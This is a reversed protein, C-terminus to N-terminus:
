GRPARAMEVFYQSDIDTTQRRAHRVDQRGPDPERGLVGSGTIKQEVLFLRSRRITTPSAGRVGRPRAGHLCGASPTGRRRNQGGSLSPGTIWPSARGTCHAPPSEPQSRTTALVPHETPEPLRAVGCGRPVPPRLLNPSWASPELWHRGVAYIGVVDYKERWRVAHEIVGPLFSGESAVRDTSSRSRRSRPPPTPPITVIRGGGYRQFNIAKDRPGEPRTRRLDDLTSTSSDRCVVPPARTLIFARPGPGQPRPAAGAGSASSAPEASATGKSVHGRRPRGQAGRGDVPRDRFYDGSRQVAGRTASRRPVRPATTRRLLSVADAMAHGCRTPAPSAPAARESPADAM